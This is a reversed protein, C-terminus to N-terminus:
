SGLMAGTEAHSHCPKVLNHHTEAMTMKRVGYARMCLTQSSEYLSRCCRALMSGTDVGKCFGTCTETVLEDPCATLTLTYPAFSSFDHGLWALGRSLANPKLYLDDLRPALLAEAYHM